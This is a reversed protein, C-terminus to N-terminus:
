NLKNNHKIKNFKKHIKKQQQQQTQQQQDARQDPKETQNQVGSVFVKLIEKPDYHKRCMPCKDIQSACSNCMSMHGCGSLVVSVTNEMCIVCLLDFTTTSNDSQQKAHKRKTHQALDKRHNFCRDCVSCRLDTRQTHNTARANQHKANTHQRLASEKDFNRNCLSCYPTNAMNNTITRHAAFM